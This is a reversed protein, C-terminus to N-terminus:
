RGRDRESAPGCWIVLMGDSDLRKMDRQSGGLYYRIATGAGGRGPVASGAALCKAVSDRDRTALLERVAPQGFWDPGTFSREAPLSSSWRIVM